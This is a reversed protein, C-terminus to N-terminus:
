SSNRIVRVVPKWSLGPWDAKAMKVIMGKTNRYRRISRYTTLPIVLPDTFHHGTDHAAAPTATGCARCGSTRHLLLHRMEPVACTQALSWHPSPARELVLLM